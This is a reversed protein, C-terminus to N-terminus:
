LTGVKAPADGNLYYSGITHFKWHVPDHVTHTRANRWYLDFGHASRTTSAGGYQFLANTAALAVETTLVKAEATAIAAATVREAIPDQVAADVLHGARELLAEGARLRVCLDGIGSVVYPDDSARAIGSGHLPRAHTRVYAITAAIAAQAIGADIAAHGLQAVTGLPTRQQALAADFVRGAPVAVGEFIATGSATTRQGMADWDDLITVGKAHRDVIAVVLRGDEDLAAVNIFDAHLSGTTYYKRGGLRRVEGRGALRTTFSEPTAGGVESWANAFRHGQLLKDFFFRKQEKSGVADILRVTLNFNNVVHGLSADAAAVIAAVRAVTAYSIGAGGWAKPVTAASLGHRTFADLQQEPFRRARDREGAGEAFGPALRAAVELAHDDSRIPDASRVPLTAAAPSRAITAAPM